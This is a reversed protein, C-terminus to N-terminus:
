KAPRSVCFLTMSAVGWGSFDSAGTKGTAPFPIMVSYKVNAPTVYDYSYDRAASVKGEKDTSSVLVHSGDAAERYDATGGWTLNTRRELGAAVKESKMTYADEFPKENGGGLYVKMKLVTISANGEKSVTEDIEHHSSAVSPEGVPKGNEYEQMVTSGDCTGVYHGPAREAFAPAALLLLALPLLTKM